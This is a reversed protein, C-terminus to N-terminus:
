KSRSDDYHYGYQNHSWKLFRELSESDDPYSELYIKALRRFIEFLEKDTYKTM